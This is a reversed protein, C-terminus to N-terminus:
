RGMAKAAAELAARDSGFKEILKQAQEPTLGFKQALQRVADPSTAPTGRDAKGARDKGNEM